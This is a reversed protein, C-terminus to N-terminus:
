EREQLTRVSVGLLEAFKSPSFGSKERVRVIFPVQTIRGHQGSKIRVFGVSFRWAL